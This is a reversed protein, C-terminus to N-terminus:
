SGDTERPESLVCYAYAACPISQCESARNVHCFMNPNPTSVSARQKRLTTSDIKYICFAVRVSLKPYKKFSELAM